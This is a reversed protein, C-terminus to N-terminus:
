WPLWHALIEKDYFLQIKFISETTNQLKGVLQAITSENGVYNKIQIM